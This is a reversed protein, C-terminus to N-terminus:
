YNLRWKESERWGRANKGFKYVLRRGDVRELIERKYYYRRSLASSGATLNFKIRSWWLDESVGASKYVRPRHVKLHAGFILAGVKIERQPQACKM